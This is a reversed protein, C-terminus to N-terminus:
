PQPTPSSVGTRIPVVTVAVTPTLTAAATHTSTPASSATSTQTAPSTITPVNPVYLRQGSYVYVSALCNANQLEAISVGFLLSIGYLTDGPQVIYIVWGPPAGCAPVTASASPQVTPEAQTQTPAEPTQSPNVATATASAPPLRQTPPRQTPTPTPTPSGPFVQQVAPTSFILPADTVVPERFWDFAGAWQWEAFLFASLVVLMFASLLGLVVLRRKQPRGPVASIEAPLASVVSSLLVPCNRHARTFCHSRQYDLAIAEIPDARHCCNRLDPYGVFTDPDDPLGLYPCQNRPM